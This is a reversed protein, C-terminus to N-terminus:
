VGAPPAVTASAVTVTAPSTLSMTAPVTLAPSTRTLTLPTAAVTAFRENTTRPTGSAGPSFTRVAM